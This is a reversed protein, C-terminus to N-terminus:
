SVGTRQRKASRREGLQREYRELKHTYGRLSMELFSVIRKNERHKSKLKRTKTSESSSESSTSQTFVRLRRRKEKDEDKEKRTM